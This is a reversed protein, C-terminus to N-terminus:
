AGVRLYHAWYGKYVGYHEAIRAIEARTLDQGHGYLRSAAEQLQKESLSVAETRGLGRILVFSTSWEGFGKISHLWSEVEQYDGTRLFQEDVTNFAQITALLYEAKRANHVLTVLEAETVHVLQSAEPFAEYSMGDITITGGYAAIMSQKMRQAMNLPNRQTLVAWCANEFPTLFKVQHYGYLEQVLPAFDADERGLQYFPRLDDNMSLFFSVRDSAADQIEQSIPSDSFLTCAICPEEITGESVLQFAITQQQIRVAKTLGQMTAIQEGKTPAFGQLFNLSKHFDFPAVPTLYLKETYIHTTTAM